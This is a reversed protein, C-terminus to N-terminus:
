LFSRCPRGHFLQDDGDRAIGAGGIRDIIQAWRLLVDSANRLLIDVPEIGARGDRMDVPPAREFLRHLGVALLYRFDMMLAPLLELLGDEFLGRRDHLEADRAGPQLFLDLQHPEPGVHHRAGEIGMVLREVRIRLESGLAHHRDMRDFLKEGIRLRGLLVLDGELHLAEVGAGEPIEFEDALLAVELVGVGRQEQAPRAAGPRRRGLLRQDVHDVVQRLVADPVHAHHVRPLLPVQERERDREAAMHPDAVLVIGIDRRALERLVVGHQHLPHDLDRLTEAAPHGARLFGALDDAECPLLRLSTFTARRPRAVSPLRSSTMANELALTRGLRVKANTAMVDASTETRGPKKPTPRAAQGSRGIRITTGNAGAPALSRMARTILMGSPWASPWVMMMSFM